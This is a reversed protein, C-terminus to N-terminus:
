CSETAPSSCRRRSARWKCSRPPARADGARLSGFVVAAVALLAVVGYALYISDVADFDGITQCHTFAVDQLFPLAAQEAITWIAIAGAACLLSTVTWWLSASRIWSIGGQPPRPSHTTFSHHILPSHTTM